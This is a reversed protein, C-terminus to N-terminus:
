RPSRCLGNPGLAKDGTSGCKCPTLVPADHEDISCERALQDLDAHLTSAAGLSTPHQLDELWRIDSDIRDARMHELSTASAVKRRKFRSRLM